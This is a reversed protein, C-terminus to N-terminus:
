QNAEKDLLECPSHLSVDFRDRGGRRPIEIVVAILEAIEGKACGLVSGLAFAFRKRSSFSAETGAEPM